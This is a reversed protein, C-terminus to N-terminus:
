QKRFTAKPLNSTGSVWFAKFTKATMIFLKTSIKEASDFDNMKLYLYGRGEYGLPDKRNAELVKSFSRFAEDYDGLGTQAKGEYYHILNKFYSDSAPIKGIITDFIGLAKAYKGKSCEIIGLYTQSYINEPNEKLDRHFYELSIDNKNQQFAEVGLRYYFTDPRKAKQAFSDTALAFFLSAIILLIKHFNMM